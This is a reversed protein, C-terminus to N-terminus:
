KHGASNESEGSHGLTGHRFFKLVAFTGILNLLGYTIGIDLWEPRGTLFGVVALLMIASTGISNAALVRDFVSPGLMARIVALAMAALIALAPVIFMATNM